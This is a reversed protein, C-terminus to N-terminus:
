KFACVFFEDISQKIQKIRKLTEQKSTYRAEEKIVEEGANLEDSNDSSSTGDGTTDDTSGQSEGEATAETTSATEEELLEKQSENILEQQEPTVAENVLAEQGTPSATAPQQTSESGVDTPPTSLVKEKQGQGNPAVTNNSTSTGEPTVSVKPKNVKPQTPAESTGTSTQKTGTNVVTAGSVEQGEQSAQKAKPTQKVSVLEENNIPKGIQLAMKQLVPVMISIENDINKMTNTYGKNPKNGFWAFGGNERAEEVAQRQTHGKPIDRIHWEGKNTFEIMQNPKLQSYAEQKKGHATVFAKLGEFEKNATEKDGISLAKEFETQYGREGFVGKFDIGPTPSVGKIEGSGFLVNESVKSVNKAKNSAIVEDALIRLTKAEEPTAKGSTIVSEIATVLEPSKSGRLKMARVIFTPVDVAPKTTNTTGTTSPPTSIAKAAEIVNAESETERAALGERLSVVENLKTQLQGIFKNAQAEKDPDIPADRAATYKDLLAKDKESDPNQELFSNIKEIEKNYIDVKAETNLSFSKISAELKSVIEKDVKGLATKVDEDTKGELSANEIIAETAGVWDSKTPDTGILPAVDGTEVATSYAETKAEQRNQYIEKAETAAGFVDRTLGVGASAATIGGSSLAGATMGFYIDEPSANVGKELRNEINTQYGETGAEGASALAIQGTAKAANAIVPVAKSAIAGATTQGFAGLSAKFAEPTIVSAVKKGLGLSAGLAKATGATLLDGATEAAALSFSELQAQKKEEPTPERGERKAFNDSWKDYYTQSYGINATALATPNIAALVTNPINAAILNSVALPNNGGVKLANTILTAVDEKKIDTINSKSIRDLAEAVKPDALLEQQMLGEAERNVVSSTDTAKRFERAIRKSGELGFYGEYLEKPTQSNVTAPLSVPGISLDSKVPTNIAKLEEPTLQEGAEQRKLISMSAPDILQEKYQGRLSFPAAIVETLQRRTTDLASAAWNLPVGLGSDYELGLKTILSNESEKALAERKLQSQEQLLFTKRSTADLLDRAKTYDSILSDSNTEETQKDALIKNLYSSIDFESM